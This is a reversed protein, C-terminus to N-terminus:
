AGLGVVMLDLCDLGFLLWVLCCSVCDGFLCTLLLYGSCDNLLWVYAILCM